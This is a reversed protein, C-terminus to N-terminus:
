MWKLQIFINYFYYDDQQYVNFINEYRNSDLTPLDQIENQKMKLKLSLSVDAIIDYTDDEQLGVVCPLCKLNLVNLM